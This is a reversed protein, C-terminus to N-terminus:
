RDTRTSKQNEKPNDIYLIMNDAFSSLKVEERGIQHRSNKRRIQNIHSPSGTSHLILYTSISVGTKNRIGLFISKTKAWQTHHQRPNTM